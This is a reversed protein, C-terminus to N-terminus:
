HYIVDSPVKNKLAAVEAELENNKDLLANGLQAAMVVVQEKEELQKKAEELM